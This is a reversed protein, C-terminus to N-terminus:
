RFTRTLHALASHRYRSAGGVLGYALDELLSCRAYFAARERGADDFRGDYGALTLEFVEPGLDRYILALDCAPDTIAADTWDIVGTIASARVDVLLHPEPVPLPSLRAVAALLDAERRTTEARAAPDTEKSGRVILERDVEYAVNDVGEGLKTISRVERGPLHRALLARIEEIM